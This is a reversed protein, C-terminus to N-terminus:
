TVDSALLARVQQVDARMREILAEASDFRLEGRLRAIFEITLVQGYLDGDFDLLYAEVLLQLDDGFTPRVGVSVAALHEGVRCAYIGHAPYVLELDPVINATPFGLDRGRQAGQVVEGRVRFSAGLLRAAAEVEGDAILTRIRTSSVMQGDASVLPVVRTEFRPDAQLLAPSGTAHHGFHFNEGVSVRMAELRGVLIADIFEEPSQHAFGEDFPVVVLEDVGLEAILEAKVELSTLLKPGGGRRVVKAPHPEFTLVTDSGRIVERHGIHVGDFEGLAIRRPRPRAADLPTVQMRGSAYHRSALPPDEPRPPRSIRAELSHGVGFRALIPQRTETPMFALAQELSLLREPDADAVDFEGIRTRRLATCYADGLDAILSRVYTGSSCEIVFAREPGNRTLEEFRYVTVEREPLNVQEGARALKYARRGGIKVASYAPPRQRLQGTPLQLDGDPVRGTEVIEGEPDGTSSVAGFRAIVEYRKPLAMLFRQVRTARGVLVLLLGTAFPDLTGAHGVKVGRGLRRRTLAVVDHSTVGAPKDCLLVGDGAATLPRQTGSEVADGGTV